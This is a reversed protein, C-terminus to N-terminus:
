RGVPPRELVGRVRSRAGRAAHMALSRAAAPLSANLAHLPVIALKSSGGFRHLWAGVGAAIVEGLPDARLGARVDAAFADGAAAAVGLAYRAARGLGAEDLRDAARSPDLALREAVVAFDRVRRVDRANSRGRVFHAVLHAYLDYRDPIRVEFGFLRRDLTSRALVEEAPLRFLEPEALLVHVDLDLGLEPDRFTSAAHTQVIRVLGARGLAADIAERDREPVLVDVDVMARPPAGTGETLASVLAGKLVVPVVGLPALADVARRLLARGALVRAADELERIERDRPRM